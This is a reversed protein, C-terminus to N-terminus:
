LVVEGVERVERQQGHPAAEPLAHQVGHVRGARGGLHAGLQADNVFGAAGIGIGFQARDHRAIEKVVLDGVVEHAGTFHLLTELFDDLLLLGLGIADQAAANARQNEQDVFQGPLVAGVEAHAGFRFMQGVQEAFIEDGAAGLEPLLEGSQELGHLLVAHEHLHVAFVTQLGGFPGGPLRFEAFAARRHQIVLRQDGGPQSLKEVFGQRVSKAVRGHEVAVGLFAALDNEMMALALRLCGVRDGKPHAITERGRFGGHQGVDAFEAGVVGREVQEKRLGVGVFELLAM